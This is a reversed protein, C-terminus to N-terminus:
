KDGKVWDEYDTQSGGYKLQWEAQGMYGTESKPPYVTAVGTFGKLGLGFRQWAIILAAFIALSELPKNM